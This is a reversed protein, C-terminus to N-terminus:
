EKLRPTFVDLITSKLIWELIVAAHVFYDRALRDEESLALRTVGNNPTRGYEAFRELTNKLREGNVAVKQRQLEVVRRM